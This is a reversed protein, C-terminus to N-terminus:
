ADVFDLNECLGDRLLGCNLVVEVVATVHDDRHLAPRM